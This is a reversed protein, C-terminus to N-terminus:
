RKRTKGGILTRALDLLMDLGKLYELYKAADEAAVTSSSALLSELRQRLEPDSNLDERPVREGHLMSMLADGVASDYLLLDAHLQDAEDDASREPFPTKMFEEV